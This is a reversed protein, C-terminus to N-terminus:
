MEVRDVKVGWPDTADDLRQQVCFLNCQICTRVRVCVCVCVCVCLCVFVRVCVCVCVCVCACVCVCVCLVSVSMEMSIAERETLLESLKKTGLVNRLTTQAFGFTSNRAHEVNVVSATPNFIRFYVVADVWVSVSDKTLIQSWLPLSPPLSPPLSTHLLWM